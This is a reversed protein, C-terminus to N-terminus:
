YRRNRGGRDGGYSDVLRDLEAITQKTHDFDDMDLLENMRGRGQEVSPRAGSGRRAMSRPRPKHQPREYRRAPPDDAPEDYPDPADARGGEAQYDQYDHFVQKLKRSSMSSSADVLAGVDPVDPFFEHFRKDLGREEIFDMMSDLGSIQRGQGHEMVEVTVMEDLYRYAKELREIAPGNEPGEAVLEERLQNYRTNIQDNVVQRPDPKPIADRIAQDLDARPIIPKDDDDFSVRLPDREDKPPEPEPEGAARRRAQADRMEGQRDEQLQRGKRRLKTIEATLAQETDSSGRRGRQRAREHVDSVDVDSDFDGEARDDDIRERREEDLLDERRTQRKPTGVPLGDGSLAAPRGDGPDDVDLDDPTLFGRQDDSLNAEESVRNPAAM